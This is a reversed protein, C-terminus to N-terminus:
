IKDALEGDKNLGDRYFTQYKIQIDTAKGSVGEYKKNFELSISSSNLNMRVVDGMPQTGNLEADNRYRSVAMLLTKETRSVTFCPIIASADYNMTSLDAIIDTPASNGIASMVNYRYIKNGSSFILYPSYRMTYFKSDERLVDKSVEAVGEIAFPMTKAQTASAPVTLYVIKAQIGNHLIAVCKGPTSTHSAYIMKYGPFDPLYEQPNSKDATLIRGPYGGGNSYVFKGNANDFLLMYESISYGRTNQPKTPSSVANTIYAYCMAPALYGNELKQNVKVSRSGMALANYYLAGNSILFMRGGQNIGGYPTYIWMDPQYLVFEPKFNSVDPVPYPPLMSAFSAGTIRDPNINPGMTNKDIVKLGEGTHVQMGGRTDVFTFPTQAGMFNYNIYISKPATGLSEGFREKYYNIAFDGDKDLRKYSLEAEGKYKSLVVILDGATSSSVRLNFRFYSKAGNAKDTITLRGFQDGLNMNVKINLDKYTGVIKRSIEWEYTFKSTDSYQTGSLDVPIKLSDDQDREYRSLLGKIELENIEHYVNNGLDKYCSTLMTTLLALCILLKITKM